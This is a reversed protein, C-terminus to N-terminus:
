RTIPIIISYAVGDVPACQTLQDSSGSAYDFFDAGRGSCGGDWVLSLRGTRIKLFGGLQGLADLALYLGLGYGFKYVKSTKHKNFCAIVTRYEEALDVGEYSKKGTFNKFLGDGSDFISFELFRWPRGELSTGIFMKELYMIEAGNPSVIGDWGDDSNKSHLRVVMGRISRKKELNIHRAHEHTNRILECIFNGIDSIWDEAPSEEKVLDGIFRRIILSFEEREKIRYEGDVLDYFMMPFAYRQLSHDIAIYQGMRKEVYGGVHSLREIVAAGLRRKTPTRKSGIYVEEAMALASLWVPNGLEEALSDVTPIQTVVSLSGSTTRSSTIFFQIVQALLGIKNVQFGKTIRVEVEDGAKITRLANEISGADLLQDADFYKM